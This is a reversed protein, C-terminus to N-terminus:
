FRQNKKSSKNCGLGAEKAKEPQACINIGVLKIGRKELDQKLQNPNLFHISDIGLNKAGEVNDMKDDIFIVSDAPLKLKRLLNKFADPNPKEVGTEYSLLVPNFLSYYGLKRLINAQYQTVDSLLATQYGQRQLEKVILISEPIEIISNQIVRDFRSFWHDPLPRGLSIAYKEWFDEESGGKSVYTQMEKMAEKLTKKDICLHTTFFEALQATNVTAIVGGFDFVVAKIKDPHAAQTTASLLLICAIFTFLHKAM